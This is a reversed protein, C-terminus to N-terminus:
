HDFTSTKNNELNEKENSNNSTYVFIALVVGILVLLSLVKVLNKNTIKNKM